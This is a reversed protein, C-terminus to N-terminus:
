VILSFWIQQARLSNATPLLKSSAANWLNAVMM